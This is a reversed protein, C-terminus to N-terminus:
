PSVVQASIAILVDRGHEAVGWRLIGTERASQVSSSSALIVEEGDRTVVETAVAAPSGDAGYGWGWTVSDEVRASVRLHVTGDDRVTPVVELVPGQTRASHRGLTLDTSAVLAPSGSLVLVQQTSESRVWRSERVAELFATVGLTGIPVRVGRPARGSSSRVAVRDNGLVAYSLGARTMADSDVVIIRATVRVNSVAAAREVPTIAHQAWLPAALGILGLAITLRM